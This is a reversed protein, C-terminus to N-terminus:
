RQEVADQPAPRQYQPSVKKHGTKGNFDFGGAASVFMCFQGLPNFFGGLHALGLADVPAVAGALLILAHEAEHDEGPSGDGEIFVLAGVADQNAGM